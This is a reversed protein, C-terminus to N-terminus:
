VLGRFRDPIRIVPNGPLMLPKNWALPHRAWAMRRRAQAFLRDGDQPKAARLIDSLHARRAMHGAWGQAQKEPDSAAPAAGDVMGFHFLFLNPDIGTFRGKIRHMGSGWIVPGTAVVPKTYRASVLALTRQELFPRARDLPADLDPHRGVDLGLAGIARHRMGGLYTRLDHGAKPDLILFEDVDTVVGVDYLRFLGQAFDSMLRARRRDGAERLAPLHPLRIVNVPGLGAPAIQDHGDLIVFLNEAGFAAGYHAVWRPLFLADNRLTTMAFADPRM